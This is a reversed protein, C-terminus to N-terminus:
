LYTLDFYHELCTYYSCFENSKGVRGQLLVVILQQMLHPSGALGMAPPLSLILDTALALAPPDMALALVPPDM